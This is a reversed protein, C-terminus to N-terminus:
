SCNTFAKIKDTIDNCRHKLLHFHHFILSSVFEGMKCILGSVNVNVSFGEGEGGGWPGGGLTTQTLFLEIVRDTM